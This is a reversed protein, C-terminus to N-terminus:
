TSAEARAIAAFCKSAISNALAPSGNGYEYSRLAHWAAKVALLADHDSTGAEPPEAALWLAECAGAIKRALAPAENGYEYSKLAPAAARLMAVLAATVALGPVRAADFALDAEVAYAISISIRDMNAPDPAIDNM